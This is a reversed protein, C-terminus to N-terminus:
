TPSYRKKLEQHIRALTIALYPFFPAFLVLAYIGLEKLIMTFLIVGMILWAAIYHLNKRGWARLDVGVAM